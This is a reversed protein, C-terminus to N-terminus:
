RGVVEQDPWKARPLQQGPDPELERPGLDNALGLLRHALALTAEGAEHSVQRSEGPDLVKLAAIDVGVVGGHRCEAGAALDEVALGVILDEGWLGRGLETLVIAPRQFTFASDPRDLGQLMLIPDDVM